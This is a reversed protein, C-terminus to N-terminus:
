SGILKWDAYVTYNTRHVVRVYVNNASSTQMCVQMVYNTSYRFVLLIWSAASPMDTYTNNVMTAGNVTFHSVLKSSGVISPLDGDESYYKFAVDVGLVSALDAVAIPAISTVGSNATLVHTATTVATASIRADNLNHITSSGTIQLQTINAM